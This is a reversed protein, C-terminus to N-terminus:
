LTQQIFHVGEMMLCVPNRLVPMRNESADKTKSCPLPEDVCSHIFSHISARTSEFTGSGLHGIEAGSQKRGQM